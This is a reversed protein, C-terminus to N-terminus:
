TGLIVCKWMNTFPCGKVRWFCFPQICFTSRPGSGLQGLVKLLGPRGPGRPCTAGQERGARRRWRALLVWVGAGSGARGCLATWWSDGSGASPVAPLSPLPCGIVVRWLMNSNSLTSAPPPVMPPPTESTREHELPQVTDPPPTQSGSSSSLRQRAM